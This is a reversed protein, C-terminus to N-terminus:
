GTVCLERRGMLDSCGGADVCVAHARNVYTGRDEGVGNMGALDSRGNVRWTPNRVATAFKFMVPPVIEQRHGGIHLPDGRVVTFDRGTTTGYLAPVFGVPLLQIVSERLDTLHLHRPLCPLMKPSSVYGEVAALVDGTFVLNQAPPLKM